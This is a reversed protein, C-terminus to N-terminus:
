LQNGKLLGWMVLEEHTQFKRLEEARKFLLHSAGFHIDKIAGKM